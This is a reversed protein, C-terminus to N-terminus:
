GEEMRRWERPPIFSNIKERVILPHKKMALLSVGEIIIYQTTSKSSIQNSLKEAMPLFFLNALLAGYLTTVLSTAIGDCVKTGM